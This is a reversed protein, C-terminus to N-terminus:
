RGFIPIRRQLGPPSKITKSESDNLRKQVSTQKEQVQRQSDLFAQLKAPYETVEKEFQELTGAYKSLTPLEPRKPEGTEAATTPKEGATPQVASTKAAYQQEFERRLKAERKRFARDFAEQQEPSFEVKKAFKGEKDREREQKEQETETSEQDAPPKAAEAPPAPPDKVETTEKFREPVTGDERYKSFEEFSPDGGHFPDPAEVPTAQEDAM